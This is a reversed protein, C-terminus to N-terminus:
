RPLHGRRSRPVAPTPTGVRYTSYAPRLTHAYSALYTPVARRLYMAHPVTARQAALVALLSGRARCSPSKPTHPYSPIPTHPYPPIPTQPNPPILTHPYPPISPVSPDLTHVTGVTWLHPGYQLTWPTHVTCYPRYLISPSFPGSPGISGQAHRSHRGEGHNGTVAGGAGCLSSRVVLAACRPGCLSPHRGRCEDALAQWACVCVCWVQMSMWEDSM